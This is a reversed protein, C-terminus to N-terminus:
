KASVRAQPQASITEYLKEMSRMYAKMSFHNLYHARARTSLRSRVDPDAVLRALAAALADKDGVPVFVGTEGDSIVEEHAGVRTTVVALGHSLGELVAMALGEAHSPLVLIDARACLARAEDAGLWGPMDVLGSLGMDTAQRRYDEVPGDGALVARWRLEKMVPHSLALLLEPVGKRESLRGLFIILPPEGARINHAGPDPVCNHAIVLRREDVGLRTALTVRDREGLAVVCDARQFMRRILSQQRPSRAAFDGAYDYDHLHLIHFCGLLHAAETLILKRFTSGRGAVHIHHIRKPDVVRDKAMTLIAGLLRLSSSAASWRPGRTDTVAHEAGGEKATSTLYGILRGIGGGNECGGPVYHRVRTTNRVVSPHGDMLVKMLM